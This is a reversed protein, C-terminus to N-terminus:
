SNCFRMLKSPAPSQPCGMLPEQSVWMPSGNLAARRLGPDPSSVRRSTEPSTASFGWSQQGGRLCPAQVGSGRCAPCLARGLTAQHPSGAPIVPVAWWGPAHPLGPCLSQPDSFTPVVWEGLVGCPIPPGAAAWPLPWAQHGSGLSFGMCLAPGWECQIQEHLVLAFHDMELIHSLRGLTDTLRIQLPLATLPLPSVAGRTKQPTLPSAITPGAFGM